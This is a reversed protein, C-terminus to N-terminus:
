QWRFTNAIDDAGQPDYQNTVIGYTIVATTAADKPVYYRVGVLKVPKGTVQSTGASWTYVFKQGRHGDLSIPSPASTLHFDTTTAPLAAVDEHALVAVDAAKTGQVVAVQIREAPGVFAAIGDAGATMRGPADIRYHFRSDTYAVATADGNAPEGGAATGGGAPASAAGSGSSGGCAAAALAAVATLGLLPM